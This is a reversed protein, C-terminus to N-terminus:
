KPPRRGNSKGELQARLRANEAELEAARRAAEEARRNAEDAGGWPFLPLREGTRTDALQLYIGEPVMRLGLKISTLSGDRGSRIPSYKGKRLRFGQFHPQIYKREPDFLFYEKVGLREYTQYLAGLNRRWTKRSAMEFIVAPVVGKENWSRFSRRVENNVGPIVMVDPACCASPNGKEWYWFMDATVYIDTRHKYLQTLTGYLALIANVQYGTEGMPEGDESPYYVGDEVDPDAELLTRTVMAEERHLEAPHLESV